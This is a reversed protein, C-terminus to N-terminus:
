DSTPEVAKRQSSRLNSDQRFILCFVDTLTIKISRCPGATPPHPMSLMGAWVAQNAIGVVKDQKVVVLQHSVMDLLVVKGNIIKWWWRV